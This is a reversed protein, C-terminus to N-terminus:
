LLTHLNYQAEGMYNMINNPPFISQSKYTVTM